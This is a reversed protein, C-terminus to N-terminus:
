TGNILSYYNGCKKCHHIEEWDYHPDPGPVFEQETFSVLTGTIGLLNDFITDDLPCSYGNECQYIEIDDVKIDLKLIKRM